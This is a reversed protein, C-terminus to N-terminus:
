WRWVIVNYNDATAEAAAVGEVFEAFGAEFAVDEFCARAKSTDPVPVGVGACSDIALNRVIVEGNRFNVLIPAPTLPERSMSLQLPVKLMNIALEVKRLINRVAADHDASVKIVFRM